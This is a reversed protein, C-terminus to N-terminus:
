RKTRARKMARGEEEGAEEELSCGNSGSGLVLLEEEAAGM